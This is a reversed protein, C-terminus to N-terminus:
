KRVVKNYNLMYNKFNTIKKEIDSYDEKQVVTPPIIMYWNDNMQLKLWYKDITYSKNEPNKMFQLAGEKYNALLKEYYHKKVIYGTTTLCNLIKICYNNIPIYPLMNNGAILVVDWAINLNLFKNINELFLNTDLIQLDDECIFVYDYENKKAIELCKIHSFSCGLAGNEKEIANFRIPNKIGIKKLESLISQNRDIRKELNIYITPIEHINM